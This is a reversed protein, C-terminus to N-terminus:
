SIAAIAALEQVVVTEKAAPRTEKLRYSEGRINV